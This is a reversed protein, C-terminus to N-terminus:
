AHIALGISPGSVVRALGILEVRGYIGYEAAAMNTMLPMSITAAAALTLFTKKLM